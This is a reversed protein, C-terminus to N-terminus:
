IVKKNIKLEDGFIDLGSGVLLKDTTRLFNYKEIFAIKFM